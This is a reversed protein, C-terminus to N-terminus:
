GTFRQRNFLTWSASCLAQTLSTKAAQISTCTESFEMRSANITEPSISRQSVMRSPAQVNRAAANALPAVTLLTLAIILRLAKM